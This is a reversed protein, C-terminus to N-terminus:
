QRFSFGLQAHSTMAFGFVLEIHRKVVLNKLPRHTAAITVIRMATELRFLGSQRGTCISDTEFAVCILLSRESILVGGYFSLTTCGTVIRM